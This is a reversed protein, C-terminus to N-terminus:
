VIIVKMTTVETIKKVRAEVSAEALVEVAVSAEVEIIMM